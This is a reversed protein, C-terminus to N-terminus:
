QKAQTTITVTLDGAVKTIRYGNAVGTEDPGKLNKYSGTVTIESIEFGEAVTVIFNVQGDTKTAAGTASDRSAASNTVTGGATMDQTKFVTVTVNEDPVFAVAYGNASDDVASGSARSTVTVTLDGAIKTIRYGNETGTDASGKLNKYEGTVVIDALEFGEAFNLVFNVQGDTQTPIGTERDRSVAETAVAGNKTLDQTPFVTVTVNEDAVFTVTYGVPEATTAATTAATTEATTVAATAGTTVEAESQNDTTCAALSGVVILALLICLIKKM